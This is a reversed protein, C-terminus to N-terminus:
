ELCALLICCRVEVSCVISDECFEYLVGLLGVDLDASLEGEMRVDYSVSDVSELIM